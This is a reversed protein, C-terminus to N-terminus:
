DPKAMTAISQVLGRMDAWRHVCMFKTLQYDTLISGIQPFGADTVLGAGYVVLLLIPGSVISLVVENLIYATCLFASLDHSM